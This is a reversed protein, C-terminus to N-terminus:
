VPGLFAVLFHGEVFESQTWNPTAIGSYILETELLSEGNHPSMYSLAHRTAAERNVASSQLERQLDYFHLESIFWGNKMNDPATKLEEKMWEEVKTYFEHMHEYSMSYSYNSDYEVVVAKITPFNDKSFRPGAVPNLFESPTQYIEAIEEVICMDFISREFPFTSTECCPTRNRNEIPDYCKRKMSKIFTEIFCNQLLPGVMSQYFPQQRVNQCFSTLWEQSKPDSMDFTPDLVLTGLDAPDLHDGNDVPLVGWVFRLPLKFNTKLMPHSM